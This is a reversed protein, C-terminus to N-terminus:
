VRKGGKDQMHELARRDIKGNVTTPFTGLYKFSRPVMYGPLRKGLLQKLEKTTNFSAETGAELQCFAQLYTVTGNKKVPLVCAQRVQPLACLHAEIDGLEIRYGHLKVQFDYRGHFHLMGNEDLTCSDGTRYARMGNPVPGPYSAFAARTADPRHYYGKAVTDGVIFLEGTQGAPLEELTSPDLVALQIHPKAFGVPLPDPSLATARDIETATVLVTSETPGYGNIVTAAPFRDLLQLATENRLTEGVFFFTRLKPLLKSDFSPDALCMDAFSPTSVWFSIGSSELAKFAEALNKDADSELAFLTDGAGLGRVLDTVSLDFTFPARNFFVQHESRAFASCMWEWFADVNAATVEVGKPAGTSGSTFLLYFTDDGAVCASNDPRDAPCHQSCWEIATLDISASVADTVGAPIAGTTDLLLPMDLQSLISMMREEPLMTDLPAYAHGSKACALFAVLMLPSKHGHVAIPAGRKLSADESLQLALENSAHLLEGYTIAEGSSNFFACATPQTVGFGDVAELFASM